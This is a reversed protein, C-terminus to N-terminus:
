QSIASLDRLLGRAEQVRSGGSQASTNSLYDGLVQRAATLNKENYYIKALAIAAGGAFAHAPKAHFIAEYANKADARNGSAELCQARAYQVAPLAPHSPYQRAINEYLTAAGNFNAAAQEAHAAQILALAAAGTGPYQAAIAQWQQETTAGTLKESAEEERAIRSHMWFASGILIAIFAATALLAPKGYQQFFDSSDELIQPEDLPTSPQNAM